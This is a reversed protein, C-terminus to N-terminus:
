GETDHLGKELSSNLDIILLHLLKDADPGSLSVHCWTMYLDVQGSVIDGHHFWRWVM